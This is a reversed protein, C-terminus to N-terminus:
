ENPMLGQEDFLRFLGDSVKEQPHESHAWAVIGDPQVIFYSPTGPVKWEKMNDQDIDDLYIFNHADGGRSQCPRGNACEEDGNKDRFSIIETRSTEHNPLDLQTASAIFNVTPGNWAPTGDNERSIKMFYDAIEGFEDAADFCFGCDTDMFEIVLWEANADGATWNDTIYDDMKFETWGSGNYMMGELPPAREGEKTGTKIPDTTFALFIIAIFFLATIKVATDTRVDAETNQKM